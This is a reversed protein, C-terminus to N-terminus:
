GITESEQKMPEPVDGTNTSQIISHLIDITSSSTSFSNSVAEAVSTLDIMNSDTEDNDKSSEDDILLPSPPAKSRVQIFSVPNSNM